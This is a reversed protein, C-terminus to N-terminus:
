AEETTEEESTEKENQEALNQLSEGVNGVTQRTFKVARNKTNISTERIKGRTKEGSSPAYLLGITAGAVVGTFFAFIIALGNNNQENNSM